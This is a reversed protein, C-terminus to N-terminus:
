NHNITLSDDNLAVENLLHRPIEAVGFFLAINVPERFLARQTVASM